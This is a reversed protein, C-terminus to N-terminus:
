GEAEMEKPSIVKSEPHNMSEMMKLLDHYGVRSIFGSYFFNRLEGLTLRCGERGARELGRALQSRMIQRVSYATQMIHQQHNITIGGTVSDDRIEAILSTLSAIGEVAQNVCNKAGYEVVPVKLASAQLELDTHMPLSKMYIDSIIQLYHSEKRSSVLWLLILAVATGVTYIFVILVLATELLAINKSRFRNEIRSAFGRGHLPSDGNEGGMPKFTALKGAVDRIVWRPVNPNAILIAETSLTIIGDGHEYTIQDASEPRFTTQKMPRDYTKALGEKVAPHVGMLGIIESNDKLLQRAQINPAGGTWFVVDLSGLLLNDLAETLVLGQPHTTKNLDCIELINAPLSLHPTKESTKMRVRAEHFFAKTLHNPKPELMLGASDSLGLKQIIDLRRKKNYFVHVKEEYVSIIEEVAKKNYGERRFIDSQVIALSTPDNVVARAIAKSGKPDSNNTVSISSLSKSLHDGLQEYLGGATSYFTYDDQGGVYRYTNVPNYQPFYSSSILYFAVLATGLSIFHIVMRERSRVQKDPEFLGLARRLLEPFWGALWFM